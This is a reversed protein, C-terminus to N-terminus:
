VHSAKHTDRHAGVVVRVGIGDDHASPDLVVQELLATHHHPAPLLGIDGPADRTDHVCRTVDACVQVQVGDARDVAGAGLHVLHFREGSLAHLEHGGCIVVEDVVELWGDCLQPEVAPHLRHHPELHGG